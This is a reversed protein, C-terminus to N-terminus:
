PPKACNVIPEQAFSINLGLEFSEQILVCINHCLAKLLIENDQGIPTKSRLGSGFKTKIMAFVTEANSRKHYHQMFEDFREQFMRYMRMWSYSGRAKGTANKKFPIFPIAGAKTIIDLNRRSSYALDASIEKMHFVSSTNNVLEPFPTNDNEEGRTTIISTIINTKVGSMVHAKRWIRYKKRGGWKHDLWRGFLSTSFGSSDIAFDTEISQLPISSLAILMKLYGAMSDLNLHNLLTNFHPVKSVLGRDKALHLESIIRRSSKGCYVLLALCFVTEQADYRPRGENQEKPIYACLERLMDMFMVKENTQALNYETWQQPYTKRKKM